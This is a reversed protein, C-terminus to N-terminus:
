ARRKARVAELDVVPAKPQLAEIADLLRRARDLDGATVAAAAEARLATALDGEPARVLPGSRDSAHTVEREQTTARSPEPTEVVRIM